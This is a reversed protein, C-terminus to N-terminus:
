ARAPRVSVGPLGSAEGLGEGGAVLYDAGVPDQGGARVDELDDALPDSVAEDVLAPGADSGARHFAGQGFVGVLVAAHRYGGLLCEGADGDDFEVGGVM